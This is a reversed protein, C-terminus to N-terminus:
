GILLKIVLGILTTSLVFIVAGGWKLYKETNDTKNASITNKIEVLMADIKEFREEVIEFKHILQTYRQACLDVHLDLSTREAELTDIIETKM